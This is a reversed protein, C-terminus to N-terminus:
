PRRMSGTGAMPASVDKFTGDAQREFWIERLPRLDSLVTGDPGFFVLNDGEMDQLQVAAGARASSVWIARIGPLVDRVLQAMARPLSHDKSALYADRASAYHAGQLATRVLPARDLSDLLERGAQSSLSLDAIALAQPFEYEFIRKQSLKLPFTRATLTTPKGALKRQVDEDLTTGFAYYSLEGLLADNFGISTYVGGAAPKASAVPHPRPGTWRYGDNISSEHVTRYKDAGTRGADLAQGARFVRPARTPRRMPLSAVQRQLTAYVADYLKPHLIPM